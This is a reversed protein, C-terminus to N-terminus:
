FHYCSKVKVLRHKMNIGKKGAWMETFLSEVEECIGGLLTHSSLTFDINVNLLSSILSSNYKVPSRSQSVLKKFFLFLCVLFCWRDVTLHSRMECYLLCSIYVICDIVM